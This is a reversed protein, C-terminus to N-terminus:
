SVESIGLSLHITEIEMNTHMNLNITLDSEKDGEISETVWTCTSTWMVTCKCLSIRSEKRRM